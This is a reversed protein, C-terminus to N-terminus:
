TLALAWGICWGVGVTVATVVTYAANGVPGPITSVAVPVIAGALLTVKDVKKRRMRVVLIYLAAAALLGQVAAGTFRVTVNGLLQNVWDVFRRLWRGVPTGLVGAVGTMLLLVVIRPTHNGFFWILAAAILAVLGVVASVGGSLTPTNM